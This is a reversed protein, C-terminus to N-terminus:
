FEVREYEIGDDFEEEDDFLELADDEMIDTVDVGLIASM